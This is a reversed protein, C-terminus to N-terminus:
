GQSELRDKLMRLGKRTAPKIFGAFLLPFMVGGVGGPRPMDLVKEVKTGSGQPSLRYTSVFNEDQETATFEILKPPDFGTVEVENRHDGDGPVWGFSTFRSGREVPADVGETRYPRPSWEAHRTPDRLYEFVEEPPRDIVVSVNGHLRGSM